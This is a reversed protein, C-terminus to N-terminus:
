AVKSDNNNTTPKTKKKVAFDLTLVKLRNPNQFHQRGYHKVYFAIRDNAEDKTTYTKNDTWVVEGKEDYKVIIFVKM